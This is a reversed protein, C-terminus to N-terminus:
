KVTVVTVGDGGEGFQGTRISKVHVHTKLYNRLGSRLVGTGKGHILMVENQRALFVEDLYRDTEMVAEDLTMGRLDFSMGPSLAAGRRLGGISETKKPQPAAEIDFLPAELKLAGAQVYVKGDRPPKLVVADVGHSILRVTDGATIDEEKTGSKVRAKKRLSSATKDIKDNLAKRSSNIEEQRFSQAKKLGDIIEEAEYRAERLIDLAQENAKDVISQAKEAAKKLGTDSKDRISQAARRLDEAQRQKREAQERRKEAEGILQEFKVAEQSMHARASDIIREDLGLKKAIEFANSVGPVGMILQYTPSLTKLSFAMCANKYVASSMAFAKIESYHTTALVTCGREELEKLIATALAAGEAPDTGAGLEDLLVLTGKDACRVIGTINSMHSSFTSLSQEISQEDGIDAFIKTYVPLATGEDAPVFLGSQAMLCLLGVLKLTVTKGGTNPGTIILGRDGEEIVLSVPVVNKADILPHRGKKIELAGNDSLNPPSAKMVFSLRAKAFILDLGTLINLNASLESQKERLEESFGHLIRETEAAESLELERIRNNAEVVEMPEIFFTQGSSSQDHVLGKISRKHEQKVPVVYRGGRTTVIADQLYEKYQPLRIINNLKERIGDGERLIRRRISALEASACDALTTENLVANDLKEILKEDYALADAMSLLREAGCDALGKRARRAAKEVSLVRLLEKCALDAGAKLRMIEASIDEFGGIPSSASRALVSQAELTEDILRQADATKTRPTLSLAAARGSGSLTEAALMNLIKDYELKALVKKDM